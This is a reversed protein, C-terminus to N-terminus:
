ELERSAEAIEARSKSQGRWRLAAGIAAVGAASSGGLGAAVPFDSALSLRAGRLGHRRAVAALLARDGPRQVVLEAAASAEPLATVQVTAYRAIAVNCVYGGEEVDYPPVDTWGGGFDIRTPARFTFTVASFYEARKNSRRNSGSARNCWM